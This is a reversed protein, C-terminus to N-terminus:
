KQSIDLLPFLRQCFYNAYNDIMMSPLHPEILSVWDDKLEPTIIELEKQMQKSGNKSTIIDILSSNLLTFESLENSM